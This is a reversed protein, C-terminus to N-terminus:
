KKGFGFSIELASLFKTLSNISRDCRMQRHHQTEEHVICRDLALHRRRRDQDQREHSALRLAKVYPSSGYKADAVARPVDVLLPRNLVSLVETAEYAVNSTLFTSFHLFLKCTWSACSRAHEAQADLCPGRMLPEHEPLPASRVACCTLSSIAYKGEIRRRRLQM